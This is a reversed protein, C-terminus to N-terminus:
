WPLVISEIQQPIKIKNITNSSTQYDFDRVTNGGTLIKVSTISLLM